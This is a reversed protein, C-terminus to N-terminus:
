KPYATLGHGRPDVEAWCLQKSPEAPYGPPCFVANVQGLTATRSIEHGRGTLADITAADASEEVRVVPGGDSHVRPSRMARDLRGNRILSEAAVTMMATPGASGGGGVAAFKFSGVNPNIAMMPGLSSPNRQDPGPAPAVLIGTGPAVRGNGFPAYATFSCAVAGGLADLVVFGTSDSAGGAPDAATGPAVPPGAKKRDYDKMATRAADRSLLGDFAVSTGDDALWRARGAFSRRAAEVFLHPRQDEKARRYRRKDTLMRWMQGAILGAGAPPGAFYVIDNGFEIGPAPRWGPAFNRLDEHGLTGGTARVAAVLRDALPGKYLASAGDVRLVAITDALGPQALKRGEVPLRGSPAFVRRAAKNRFSAAGADAFRRAAARSVPVGFRAMREAPALLMRWDLTGYRAHLAAMGRVNAPVATSRKAGRSPAARPAPFNLAVVTGQTWDNVLCVGGGGLTAASPYTVALAFYLAVAADAASGGRGLVDAAAKAAVPEDAVVVGRFPAGAEGTDVAPDGCGALALSSIVFVAGWKRRHIPLLLSNMFRLWEGKCGM